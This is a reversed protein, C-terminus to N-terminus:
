CVLYSVMECTVVNVATKEGDFCDGEEDAEFEAIWLADVEDAAVMFRTTDCLGVAEVSFAIAFIAIGIDPM